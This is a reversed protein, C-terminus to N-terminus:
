YDCELSYGYQVIQGGSFEDGFKGTRISDDLSVRGNLNCQNWQCQEENDKLCQFMQGKRTETKRAVDEHETHLEPVIIM